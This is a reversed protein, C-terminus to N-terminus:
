FGGMNPYPHFLTILILNSIYESCIESLDYKDFKSTVSNMGVCSIEHYIGGAGTGLNFRYCGYGTKM